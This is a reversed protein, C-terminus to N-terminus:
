IEKREPINNEANDKEERIPTSPINSTQEQKASEIIRLATEMTITKGMQRGAYIYWKGDRMKLEMQNIRRKGLWM